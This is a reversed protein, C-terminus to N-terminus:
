IAEYIVIVQDKDHLVTNEFTDVEQGNVTMRIRHTADAKFDLVQEKSFPKNWVAFFDALTFDRPASTEIHIVGDPTHTHVAKMCSPTIGVNDPIAQKEGNVVITLVPHIHFSIMSGHTVCTQALESTTLTSTDVAEGRSNAFLMVGGFLLICAGLILLGHKLEM